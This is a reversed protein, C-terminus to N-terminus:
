GKLSWDLMLQSDRWIADRDDNFILVIRRRGDKEGSSILCHGAADTYGTKMGDCYACDRLVHNTNELNEFRGDARRFAVSRTNMIERLDPLKDVALAVQAMDRATAYQNDVPLGNPNVFHSNAMGLTAARDNMKQAFAELSGANDRALAQAIDNFSRVLLATLLQRRSYQEGAKLGFRVPPCKTDAEDITVLKDLNGSEVIILSTLLKQTSAVQGQRDSNKEYLLDGTKADVVVCREGIIKPATGRLEREKALVQLREAKSIEAALQAKLKAVEAKQEELRAQTSELERQTEALKQAEDHATAERAALKQERSKLSEVAVTLHTSDECSTLCTALVGAILMSPLLPDLQGKFFM